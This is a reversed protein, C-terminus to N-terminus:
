TAGGAARAASSARRRAPAQGRIEGLDDDVREGLRVGREVGRAIEARADRQATRGIGAMVRAREEEALDDLRELGLEVRAKLPDEPEVAALVRAKREIRQPVPQRMKAASGSRM